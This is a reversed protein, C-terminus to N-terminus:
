LLIVVDGFELGWWVVGKCCGILIMWYGEVCVVFDELDYVLCGKEGGCM